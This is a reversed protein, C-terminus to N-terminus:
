GSASVNPRYELMVLRNDLVRNTVLEYESRPFGVYMPERGDPGLTVPFITVRLLDVLGANMLSSVLSMSGITRIEVESALKLESIGEALDGSILRTNEWELPESLTNSVVAKPRENMKRSVEDTGPMSMGAMALYTYRGMLVLHPEELVERLREDLEPGGLDFFPGVNEGAAYGDLSLFIDAILEAM